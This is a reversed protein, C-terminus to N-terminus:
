VKGQPLSALDKKHRRSSLFLYVALFIGAMVTMGLGCTTLVQGKDKSSAQEILYRFDNIMSSLQEGPNFTEIKPYKQLLEDPTDYSETEAPLKDQADFDFEPASLEVNSGYSIREVMAPTNPDVSAMHTYFHNLDGGILAPGSEGWTVDVSVWKDLGPMFIQVWQHAEQKDAPLRSDYGYGFAARAPIGEARSLTLFLDSYEMCVGSGGNLTKLAGQRENLGFRKVESYDITDVVHQYTKAIIGYVNTQTGKIEAALTKIQEADVEWYQAPQTYSSILKSDFASIDGSNTESVNVDNRAVSAYGEVVIQSNEHTPLKFYGILNGEVDATVQIPEPSLNTFYVKQSIEGEDIDRPLIVRYENLYGTNRSDTAPADQTIKFKYFQSRGRQIWITKGVLSDQSFNYVTFGGSSGKSAPTPIAFHEAPLQDSVKFVTSYSVQTNGKVFEFNEVFGPAYLDYLAGVKEVLGFNTYTLIFTLSQNRRLEKPYSVKLEAYKEQSTSTFTQNVGDSTIKATAISQELKEKNDGVVPIQFIEENAKSILLNTSNNTITHKEIVTMTGDAGITYERDIVVNFDQALVPLVVGGLFFFLAGTIIAAIKRM